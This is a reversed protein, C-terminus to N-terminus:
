FKKPNKRSAAKSRSIGFIEQPVENRRFSPPVTMHLKSPHLDSLDNLSLATENSYIGQPVGKVPYERVLTFPEVKIRDGGGNM